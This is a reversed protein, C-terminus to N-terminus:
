GKGRWPVVGREIQKVLQDLLLATLGIVVICLVAVDTQQFKKTTWALGGIGPIGDVTEAAVITTWAFGIALRTGTFVEPLVSPLQVHRLVQWRSAGLVRAAHVRDERIAQVGGVVSLAIPPFATLFLLWVKSANGIGFWIILLSFYALPPLSRLFTVYPEAIIQFPRVTALLLGVVVGAVIALGVGAGIRGLSHLLHDHLYYGSLGVQGDHVTESEVFRDWVQGPDPVFLDSWVDLKAVLWWGFLFVALSLLRAAARRWGSGAAALRVRPRAAVSAMLGA